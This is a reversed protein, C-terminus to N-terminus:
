QSKVIVKDNVLDEKSEIVLNKLKRRGKSRYSREGQSRKSEAGLLQGDLYFDEFLERLRPTLKSFLIRLYEKFKEAPEYEEGFLFHCLELRRKPMNIIYPYLIGLAKRKRVVTNKAVGFLVAIETDSKDLYLQPDELEPYELKDLGGFNKVVRRAIEHSIGAIKEIERYSKRQDRLELIERVKKKEM